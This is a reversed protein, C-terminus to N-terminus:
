ELEWCLYITVNMRLGRGQVTGLLSSLWLAWRAQKGDRLSWHAENDITWHRLFWQKICIVMKKKNKSKNWSNWTLPYIEKNDCRPLFCFESNIKLKKKNKVNIKGKLYVNNFYNRSIGVVKCSSAVSSVVTFLASM